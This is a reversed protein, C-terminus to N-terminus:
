QLSKQELILQKQSIALKSMEVDLIARARTNTSQPHEDQKM